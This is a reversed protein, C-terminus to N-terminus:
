LPHRSDIHRERGLGSSPLTAGSDGPRLSLPPRGFRNERERESQATDKEM